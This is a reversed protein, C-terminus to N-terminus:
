KRALLLLERSDQVSKQIVEIDGQVVQDAFMEPLKEVKSLEQLYLLWRLREMLMGLLLYAMEHPTAKTVTNNGDSGCLLQNFIRQAELETLVGRSPHPLRPNGAADDTNSKLILELTEIGAIETLFIASRAELLSTFSPLDEVSLFGPKVSDGFIETPPSDLVNDADKTTLLINDPDSEPAAIMIIDALEKRTQSVATAMHLNLTTIKGIMGEGIVQRARKPNEDFDDLSDRTVAVGSQSLTLIQSLLHQYGERGVDGEKTDSLERHKGMVSIQVMKTWWYDAHSTVFLRLEATLKFEQARQSISRLRQWLAYAVSLWSHSHLDKNMQIAILCQQALLHFISARVSWEGYTLATPKPWTEKVYNRQYIGRGLDMAQGALEFQQAALQFSKQRVKAHGHEIYCTVLCSCAIFLECAVGQSCFEIDVVDVFSWALVEGRLPDEVPSAHTAHYLQKYLTLLASVYNMGAEIRKYLSTATIAASWEKRLYLLRQLLPNEPSTTKKEGTPEIRAMLTFPAPFADHMPDRLDKTM